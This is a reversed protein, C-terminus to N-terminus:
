CPAGTISATAGWADFAQLIAQRLTLGQSVALTKIHRKEAETLNL